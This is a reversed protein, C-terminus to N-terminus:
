VEDQLKEAVVGQVVPGLLVAGSTCVVILLVECVCWVECQECWRM